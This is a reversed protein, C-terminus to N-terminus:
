RRNSSRRMPSALQNAPREAMRDSGPHKDRSASLYSAVLATLFEDQQDGSIADKLPLIDITRSSNRAKGRCIILYITSSRMSRHTCTNRNHSRKAAGRGTCRHRSGAAPQPQRQHIPRDYAIIDAIPVSGAPGLTEIYFQRDLAWSTVSITTMAGLMLPFVLIVFLIGSLFKRM